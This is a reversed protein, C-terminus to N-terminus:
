RQLPLQQSKIISNGGKTKKSERLGVTSQVFCPTPMSSPMRPKNERDEQFSASVKAPM